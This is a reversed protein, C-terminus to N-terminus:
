FRYTVKFRFSRGDQEIIDQVHETSGPDGYKEDSVNYVSASVELSRVLKQSFITVNTVFVDGTEKGELTKRSSMYQEELGTFIKEGVLPVTINLKVMHEPSNVPVNGTQADEVRQLTYSIRGTMGNEWKGDLELEIGKAVAKNINKFVLLGDDPDVESDILDTVKNYFGSITLLFRDGLYQEGVLEYTRIKEPNLNPNGKNPFASYYLEFDNPARFATGYILKFDTKELPHYILAVRPNTTDGFTSYHDYRVGANLLLNKFIAFEDQFYFAWRWSKRKDDLIMKFPDEDYNGQNQKLNVQYETGVTLKHKELLKKNLMVEGGWWEGKSFDKNVVGSYVYDGDYDVADYFLRAMARLDNKFVHDYKIDIYGQEEVTRNRPDNFDTGFSATPIGKTRSVYAGELNFDQFSLKSFLSYNRGYDCGRAVGKDTAPTDFEKFFLDQGKSDLISASATVDLGNEFSNGFSLRGNYTRFSGAAGSAEVTKLDRGSKTIINIVAFFANNGYLSSGPGRIVEIREVLDIDLIFSDEIAVSDYVNDNVRHGDILVLIRSNYDGTRGFGRVGVYSYNRDSTVHFSRLSRLIDALTRYGYKKIDDATVISVSSPAETVKQLYKSAGYVTDVKIEMLEELSLETLDAQDEAAASVFRVTVIEVGFFLLISVLLFRLLKEM